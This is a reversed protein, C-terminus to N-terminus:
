AKREEKRFACRWGLFFANKAFPLNFYFYVLFAFFIKKFFFLVLFFFFGVCMSPIHTMHFKFKGCIITKM